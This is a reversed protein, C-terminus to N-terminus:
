NLKLEIKLYSLIERGNDDIVTDSLVKSINEIKENLEKIEITEILEKVESDKTADIAYGFNNEKTTFQELYTGKSVVIPKNFYLAEYLKNPEAVRENITDTRYCAVVVDIHKYVDMLDEPNKFAGMYHINAYQNTINEINEKKKTDGFFYFSHEPFYEGIIRAFRFVTNEYRIAGAFGFSISQKPQLTKRTREQNNFYSDVKNPQIIINNSNLNFYDKFGKTILVTLISNKIIWKDINKFIKELFPNKFYTYVLDSIEYIYRNKSYLKCILAQDFGFFYYVVNESSYKKFIKKIHRKSFLFKKIYDSGSPAFGLVNVKKGDISANVNYVGRDFGYIEVEYGNNIFGRIRKLCRPQSISSLIFIVKPKNKIDLM